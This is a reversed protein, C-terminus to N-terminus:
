RWRWTPGDDNPPTSSTIAAPTEEASIQWVGRVGNIGGNSCLQVVYETWNKACKWCTWILLRVKESPTPIKVREMDWAQVKGAIFLGGRGRCLGGGSGGMQARRSRRGRPPRPFTNWPLVHAFRQWRQVFGFGSAARFFVRNSVSVFFFFRVLLLPHSFEPNGRERLSTLARTRKDALSSDANLLVLPRRNGFIDDDERWWWWWWSRRGNTLEKWLHIKTSYSHENTVPTCLQEPTIRDRQDQTSTRTLGWKKPVNWRIKM